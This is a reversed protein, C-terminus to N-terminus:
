FPAPSFLSDSIPQLIYIAYDYVYEEKFQNGQTASSLLQDFSASLQAQQAPTFRSLIKKYYAKTRELDPRKTNQLRTLVPNSIKGLYPAYFLLTFQKQYLNTYAAQINDWTGGTATVKLALATFNKLAETFDRFNGNAGMLPYTGSKIMQAHLDEANKDLCKGYQSIVHVLVITSGGQKESAANIWAQSPQNVVAKCDLNDALASSFFILTMLSILYRAKM